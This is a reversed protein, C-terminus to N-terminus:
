LDDDSIKEEPGYSKKGYSVYVVNDVVSIYGFDGSDEGEWYVRGNVIYGAPKYFHKILYVIWERYCYFKEGEDWTIKGDKDLVWQCWLGPAYGKANIDYITPDGYDEGGVFYEGNRGLEGNFSHKEWDPFVEKIIENDRGMHRVTTYLNMYDLFEKTPPKNTRFEGDFWTTYGM